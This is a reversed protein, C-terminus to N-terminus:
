LEGKLALIALWAACYVGWLLVAASPLALTAALAALTRRGGRWGQAVLRWGPRIVVLFALPITGISIVYFMVVGDPEVLGQLLLWMAPLAVAPVVFNPWFRLPPTETVTPAASM